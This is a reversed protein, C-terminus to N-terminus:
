PQLCGPRFDGPETPMPDDPGAVRLHSIEPFGKLTKALHDYVTVTSGKSDCGERLQLTVTDGELKFGQFGTAGSDMFVLGKAKEEATPGKFMNWIANKAPSKAGVKRTVPVWYDEEGAEYKAKDILYITADVRQVSGRRRPGKLKHMKAKRIKSRQIKMGKAKRPQAQRSTGAKNCTCATLNSAAFLLSLAFALRAM